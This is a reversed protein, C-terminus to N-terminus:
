VGDSGHEAEANTNAGFNPRKLSDKNIIYWLWSILLTKTSILGFVILMGECRIM